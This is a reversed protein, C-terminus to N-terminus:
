FQYGLFILFDAVFLVNMLLLLIIYRSTMHQKLRFNFQCPFSEFKVLIQYTENCRIDELIELRAEFLRYVNRVSDSVQMEFPYKM